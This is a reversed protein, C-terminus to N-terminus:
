SIKLEKDKHKKHRDKHKVPDWYYSEFDEFAWFEEYLWEFTEDDIELSGLALHNRIATLLVTLNPFEINRTECMVKLQKFHDIMAVVDTESVMRDKLDLFAATGNDARHVYPVRYEPSLGWVCINALVFWICVFQRLGLM